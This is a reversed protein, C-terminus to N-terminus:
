LPGTCDCDALSHVALRRREVPIGLEYAVAVAADMGSSLGHDLYLVVADAVEIWLHGAYIGTDREAPDNDDLVGEQTYLLHSAIPAEGRDLSDKICERAYKVNRAQDRGGALRADGRYPSEVVVRRM